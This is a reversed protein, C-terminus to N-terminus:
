TRMPFNRKKAIITPIRSKADMKSKGPEHPKDTTSTTQKMNDPSSHSESNNNISKGEVEEDKEFIVGSGKSLENSLSSVSSKTKSIKM